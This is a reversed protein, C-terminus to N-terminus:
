KSSSLLRTGAKGNVTPCAYKYKGFRFSLGVTMGYYADRTPKEGQYSFGDLYDSSLIRWSSEAHIALRQGLIYKLGVGVPVALIVRPLQHTTDTALSTTAISKAYFYTTNFGSWDRKVKLFSLGAGAFVYPVLRRFNNENKEGYPNFVVSAALENVRSSFKLNRYQRWVPSSYVSEDAAVNGHTFNLRLSFYPDLAKSVYLGLAPKLSRTNGYWNPTLDGQYVLTGAYIGAEYGSYNVQSFSSTAALTATLFLTFPLTTTSQM